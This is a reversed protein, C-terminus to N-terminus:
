KDWREAQQFDFDEQTGAEHIFKPKNNPCEECRELTKNYPCDTYNM